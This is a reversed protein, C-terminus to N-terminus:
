ILAYCDIGPVFITLMRVLYMLHRSEAIPLFCHFKYPHTDHSDTASFTIRNLNKTSIFVLIKLGQNRM